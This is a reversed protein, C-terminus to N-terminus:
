NQLLLDAASTSAPSNPKCFVRYGLGRLWPTMSKYAVNSRNKPVGRKDVVGEYPNYDLHIDVKKYEFIKESETLTMNKIFVDENYYPVHAYKGESKLIHFKYRKRELDTLDKRSFQILSKDLFEAIELAIEAEKQLREYNDRIKFFNERFFVVHAGNKIDTDYMMITIAYVTKRRRQISDCGVSITLNTNQSIFKDLYDIINTINDGGFKKFKSKIDTM